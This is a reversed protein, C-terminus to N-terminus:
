DIAPKKSHFISWILGLGVGANLKDRFLPSGDNTAGTYYGINAAGILTVRKSLPLRAGLTMKAGLYGAKARFTARSPTSFRPEVEYFYDMFPETAFVPGLTARFRTGTKFLDARTYALRPNFVIGRYRIQSLSVSLVARVPLQLSLRSRPTLDALKIKLRPGLELLFDLDPMGRRADNRDSDAPFSGGLSVDFEYRPNRLFRGRAIGGEGARFISGRYVAYPLVLGVGHYEDAAPYDPVLGGGATLGIEWRPKPESRSEAMAIFPNFGISIFFSIVFLARVCWPTPIPQSM